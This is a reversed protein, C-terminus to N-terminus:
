ACVLSAQGQSIMSINYGLRALSSSVMCSFLPTAMYHGMMHYISEQNYTTQAKLPWKPLAEQNESPTIRAWPPSYTLILESTIGIVFSHPAAPLPPSRPTKKAGLEYHLHLLSERWSGMLIWNCKLTQCSETSSLTFNPSPATGFPGLFLCIKSPSVTLIRLMNISVVLELIHRTSNYFWLEKSRSMAGMLSNMKTTRLSLFPSSVMNERRTEM